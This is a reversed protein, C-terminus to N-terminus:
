IQSAFLILLLGLFVGGIFVFDIHQHHFSYYRLLDVLPTLGTVWEVRVPCTFWQSGGWKVSMNFHIVQLLQTQVYTIGTEPDKFLLGQSSLLEPPSFTQRSSPTALMGTDDALLYYYYM